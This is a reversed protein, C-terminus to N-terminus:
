SSLPVKLSVCSCNKTPLQFRVVMYVEYESSYKIGNELPCKFKETGTTIFGCNVSTALEKSNPLPFIRDMIDYEKNVKDKNFAFNKPEFLDPNTKYEYNDCEDDTPSTGKECEVILSIDAAFVLPATFFLVAALLYQLKKM